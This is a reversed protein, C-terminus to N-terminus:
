ETAADDSDTGETRIEPLTDLDFLSDRQKDEEESILPDRLTEDDNLSSLISDEESYTKEEIVDSNEDATFSETQNTSITMNSNIVLDPASFDQNLTSNSNDDHEEVNADTTNSTSIPRHETTANTDSSLNTNFSNDDTLGKTSNNQEPTTEVESQLTSDVTASSAENTDNKIPVDELRPPTAEDSNELVNTANWHLEKGVDTANSSESHEQVEEEANVNIQEPHKTLVAQVVHAVASSADDAKYNEERTEHTNRGSTDHDQDDSSSDNEPLHEDEENDKEEIENDEDKEVDEGGDRDAEGEGKDQEDVDDDGVRGGADEEEGHGTGELLAEIDSSGEEKRKRELEEQTEDISEDGKTEEDEVEEDDIKEHNTSLEEDRPLLDKRGLKLGEDFKPLKESLEADNEEFHKRKDHSHKVQYILWFCVALLMFIQLIHKVRVGKSRQNRSSSQRIM